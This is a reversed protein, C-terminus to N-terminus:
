SANVIVQPVIGECASQNGATAGLSISYSSSLSRGAAIEGSISKNDVTFWSALCGAVPADAASSLVNGASDTAVVAKTGSLDQTRPGENTVAYSVSEGGSGPYMFGTPAKATVSWSSPIESGSGSSNFLASAAGACGLIVAASLLLGAALQNRATRSIASKTRTV